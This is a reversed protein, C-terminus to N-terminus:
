NETPTRSVHDIVMSTVDLRVGHLKVGIQKEILRSVQGLSVEDPAANSPLQDASYGAQFSEPSKPLELHFDFVGLLGTRDHIPITKHTFQLSLANALDAMSCEHFTMRMVEGDIKALWQASPPLIPFGKRDETPRGIEVRRPEAPSSQEGSATAASHKSTLKPGGLGVVLEYGAVKKTEKHFVLGFRETLFSRFMERMQASTTGPPLKATFNYPTDLWSPGTIHTGFQFYYGRMILGRLTIANYTVRGPDATGPGGSETYRMQASAPKISAVEFQLGPGRQALALSLSGLTLSVTQMIRAV